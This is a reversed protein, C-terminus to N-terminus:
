KFCLIGASKLSPKVSPNVRQPMYRSYHFSGEKGCFLTNPLPIHQGTFLRNLLFVNFSM